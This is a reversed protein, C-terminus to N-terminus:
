TETEDEILQILYSLDQKGLDAISRVLLIKVLADGKLNSKKIYVNLNETTEMLEDKCTGQLPLM